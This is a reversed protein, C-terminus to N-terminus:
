EVISIYVGMLMADLSPNEGSHVHAVDASFVYSKLVSHIDM